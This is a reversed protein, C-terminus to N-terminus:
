ERLTAEARTRVDEETIKPKFPAVYGVPNIVRGKEAPCTELLRAKDLHIHTEILGGCALRGGGDFIEADAEIRPELAVIMGNAVGVDVLRGVPQDVLQVNRVILDM